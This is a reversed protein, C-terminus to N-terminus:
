FREWAAQQNVCSAGQTHYAHGHVVWMSQAIHQLTALFWAALHQAGSAM